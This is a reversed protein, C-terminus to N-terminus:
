RCVRQHVRPTNGHKQSHHITSNHVHTITNVQTGRKLEKPKISLLPITPDHPLETNLKKFDLLNEIAEM